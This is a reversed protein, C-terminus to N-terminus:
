RCGRAWDLCGVDIENHLKNCLPCFAILRRNALFISARLESLGRVDLSSFSFGSVQILSIACCVIPTNAGRQPGRVCPYREASLRCGLRAQGILWNENQDRKQRGQQKRNVTGQRINVIEVANGRKPLDANSTAHVERHRKKCAM